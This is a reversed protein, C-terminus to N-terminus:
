HKVIIVKINGTAEIDHKFEHENQIVGIDYVVYIQRAYDKGYATIDASIEEIIKSKKAKDNLFKLEVCLNLKSFTFDPIYEKGSFEVKGAERNYDVGKNLGRGVLLAEFANQVDKENTPEVFVVARFRSKIFNEFNDFEDNAFDDYIGLEAIIMKTRIYVMELIEKQIPWVTDGSGQMKDVNFMFSSSSENTVRWAIEAIDNYERAMHKYSVYRSHSEVQENNLIEGITDRLAYLKNLIAKLERSQELSLKAM